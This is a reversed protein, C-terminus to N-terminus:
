YKQQQEGLVNMYAIFTRFKKSQQLEDVRKDQIKRSWSESYGLMKVEKILELVKSTVSTRTQIAANWNKMAPGMHKSLKTM